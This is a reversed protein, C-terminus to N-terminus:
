RGLIEGITANRYEFIREVSRRVFLAHAVAGLPGFGLAYEVRDRMLTGGPAEAFSHRHVWRRYPGKLQEDVFFHPPEFAAIRTKWRFKVGYLRLEYAILTGAEMAIPAPTLIHFRLFPPTIRELNFADAFFAFVEDRPRPIFLSRELVYSM